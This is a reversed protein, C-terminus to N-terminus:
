PLEMRRSLNRYLLGLMLAGAVSSVLLGWLAGAEALRRALYIGAGLTVASSVLSSWFVRDPRELVRLAAGWVAAFGSTFPLLGVLPVLPAASDYRGGYVVHLVDGRFSVLGVYYLGAGALFLALFIGMTRALRARGEGRHRALLPVLLLSLATISNGVPLVLNTLARLSAVGELGAWLPLLTFYLNAPVWGLAASGVAWRSYRWHGAIVERAHLGGDRWQPRLGRLLLAAAPLGSWGMALIASAPSVRGAARLLFFSGLLLALYSASGALAWGPKLGVYFARKLLWLLLIFPGSVALAALARQVEVSYLHGLLVSAGLLLLCVPAMVVFHGLTLIGVYRGFRGSYRGAGFVLMPEAFVSTHFVGFLTFVSYALAFAGYRAPPLWRALLLSVVFNAGALMAQDAISAGGRALWGRAESFRTVGVTGGPGDPRDSRLITAGITTAM